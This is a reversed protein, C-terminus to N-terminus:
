GGVIQLLENLNPAIIIEIRRNKAKDQEDVPLFESRGAAMLQQPNISSQSLLIDIVSTARMVSLEWNNRPHVLRTLKDSDTHGEVIIEITKENELVKSLAILAKKGRQEVEISGSEFLLQAELSVYIKGNKEHITLGKNEFGKLAGAVKQKLMKTDNEQRALLEELENVRSERESLQQQKIRFEHELVSLADQKRQLEISKADIDSQLMSTQKEGSSRYRDFSEEVSEVQAIVKNYQAQLHRLENGLQTTDRQLGDMNKQIVDHKAVWEETLGESLIARNTLSTIEQTCLKERQYLENYKKAPVCASMTALLCLYFFLNTPKM